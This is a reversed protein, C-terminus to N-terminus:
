RSRSNARLKGGPAAVMMEILAKTITSKVSGASYAYLKLTKCAKVIDDDLKPTGWCGLLVEAGGAKGIRALAAKKLDAGELWPGHYTGLQKLRAEQEPTMVKDWSSKNILSVIKM